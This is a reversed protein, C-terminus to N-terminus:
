RATLGHQRAQAIGALPESSIATAPGSLAAPASAAERQPNPFANNLGLIKGNKADFNAQKRRTNDSAYTNERSPCLAISKCHSINLQKTPAPTPTATM